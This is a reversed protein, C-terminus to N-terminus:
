AVQYDIQVVVYTVTGTAATIEVQLSAGAPVGTNQLDPASMWTDATAVSLDIPLLTGADARANVTVGTGGSRYARVGTVTAAAALRAVARLSPGTPSEFIYGVSEITTVPAILDV